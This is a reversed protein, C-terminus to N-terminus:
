TRRELRATIPRFKAGGRPLIAALIAEATRRTRRELRATIPRFKTGSRPLVTALSGEAARWTRRELRAIIPRFKAGGRPLIATLIAEAARWTRREFGAALPRFKAGSRSLIAAFGLRANLDLSNRIKLLAGPNAAASRLWREAALGGEATLWAPGAFVAPVSLTARLTASRPGACRAASPFASLGPDASDWTEFALRPAGPSGKFFLPLRLDKSESRESLIVDM